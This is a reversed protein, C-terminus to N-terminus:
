KWKAASAGQATAIRLFHQDASGIYDIPRPSHLALAYCSLACTDVPGREHTEFSGKRVRHRFGSLMSEIFGADCRKVSARAKDIARPQLDVFINQGRVEHVNRGSRAWGSQM